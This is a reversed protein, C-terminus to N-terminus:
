KWIFTILKNTVINKHKIGAFGLLLGILIGIVGVLIAAHIIGTVM